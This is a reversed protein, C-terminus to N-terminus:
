PVAPLSEADAVAVKGGGLIRLYDTAVNLSEKGYDDMEFVPRSPDNQKEYLDEEEEESNLEAREELFKERNLTVTESNKQALYRAIRKSEKHFAESDAVRQASLRRLDSILQPSVM